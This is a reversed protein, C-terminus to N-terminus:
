RFVLKSFSLLNSHRLRSTIEHFVQADTGRSGVRSREDARAFLLGDSEGGFGPQRQVLHYVEGIVLVRHAGPFRHDVGNVSREARM